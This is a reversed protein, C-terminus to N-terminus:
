KSLKKSKEHVTLTEPQQSTAKTKIPESSGYLEVTNESLEKILHQIFPEGPTHMRSGKYSNVAARIKKEM